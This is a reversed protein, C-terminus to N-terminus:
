PARVATVMSEGDTCIRTGGGEILDSFWSESGELTGNDSLSMDFTATTLGIGERGDSYSGTWEPDDPDELDDLGVIILSEDPGMITVERQYVSGIEDQCGTLVATVNITFLWTGAAASDAPVTPTTTSPLSSGPEDLAATVDPASPVDPASTSVAAVAPEAQALPNACAECKAGFLASGIGVGAAVGAVLALAALRGKSLSALLGGTAATAAVAGGKAPGLSPTPAVLPPLPFPPQAETRLPPFASELGPIVLQFLHEAQPLDKLNHAGLDTTEVGEPLSDVVLAHSEASLLAQGGHGAASIRAARHVDLGVYDAAGLVGEGTHFGVRVRFEGGPQWEHGALGLLIEVAAAAAWPAEQFVCFFADGETNVVIGDNGAVAAEITHAHQNLGDVYQDGLTQLLRTSGEIDTFLFTVTGTPLDM